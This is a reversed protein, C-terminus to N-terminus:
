PSICQIGLACAADMMRKDATVLKSVKAALMAGIHLGDLTRLAVPSTASLNVDLAKRAAAVVDYGIPIEWYVGASMHKEFLSFLSKAAGTQIESRVEKMSLAYYVEIRHLHSIVVRETQGLMVNRYDVSDAEKAYLKVLASTDWYVGKM